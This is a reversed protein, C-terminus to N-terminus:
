DEKVCLERRLVTRLTRLTFDVLLVLLVAMQSYALYQYVAWGTGHYMAVTAITIAASPFLYAWWSLFFPLRYFLPLLVILTLGIFFAFGYLTRGFPDLQGTLKFYSVFGVAPPAMLIFFTPLLKVPLPRHFFIRYFFITTYVVSMVMGTGFYFWNVEIPACNVGAIPAVLNGVVPIFWAPNYHNIEFHTQVIVKRIVALTILMHLPAGIWWLIEAVQPWPGGYAVALLMFSISVAGFFNMRVPHDFDRRVEDPYVGLRYLLLFVQGVLFITTLALLTRSLYPPFSLLPEIQMAAITTGSFGMISAFLSVPFYRIGRPRGTVKSLAATETASM